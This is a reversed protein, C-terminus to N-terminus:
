AGDAVKIAVVSADGPELKEGIGITLENKVVQIVEDYVRGITEKLGGKLKYLQFLASCMM